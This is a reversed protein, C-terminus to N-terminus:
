KQSHIQVRRGVEIGEVESASIATSITGISRRPDLRNMANTYFVALYQFAQHSLTWDPDSILVGDIGVKTCLTFLSWFELGFPSKSTFAQSTIYNFM